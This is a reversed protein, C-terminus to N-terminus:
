KRRRSKRVRRREIAAHLQFEFLENSITPDDLRFKRIVDWHIRASLAAILRSRQTIRLSFLRSAPDSHKRAEMTCWPLWEQWRSEIYCAQHSPIAPPAAAHALGAYLTDSLTTAM